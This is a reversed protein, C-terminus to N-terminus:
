ASRSPNFRCSTSRPISGPTAPPAPRSPARRTVTSKAARTSPTRSSCSSRGSTKKRASRSIATAYGPMSGLDASEDLLLAATSGTQFSAAAQAHANWGWAPFTYRAMVNGKFKPVFPLQEGKSATVTYGTCNKIVQLDANTGCFDATLVADNYSAGGSLTLASTARWAVNTEFGLLYRASPANEIITLSNPGLFPFQFNTFEEDYLAGNFNLSRDLRQDELGSRLQDTIPRTLRFDGSRNVGGPRYGTSYTFYVLRDDDFRYTLNGKYTEGTGVSHPKAVNVCPANPVVPRSHM